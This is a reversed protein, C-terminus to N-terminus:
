APPQVSEDQHKAKPDKNGVGFVAGGTVVCAAIIGIWEPETIGSGGPSGDQVAAVLTIIGPTFFGVVAKWYPAIRDM